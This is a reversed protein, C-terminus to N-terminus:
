SNQHIYKIRVQLDSPKREHSEIALATEIFYDSPAGHVNTWERFYAQFDEKM